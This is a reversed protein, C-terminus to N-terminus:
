GDDKEEKKKPFLIKLIRQLLKEAVSPKLQEREVFRQILKRFDEESM